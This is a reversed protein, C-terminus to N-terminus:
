SRGRGRAPQMCATRAQKVLRRATTRQSRAYAHADPEMARPNRREDARSQPPAKRKTQRLQWVHRGEEAVVLAARYPSLDARIWIVQPALPSVRGRVQHWADVGANLLFLERHAWEEMPLPRYSAEFWQLRLQRLRLDTRVYRCMLEAARRTVAPVSASDCPRYYERALVGRGGAAWGAPGQAASEDPPNNLPRRLTM